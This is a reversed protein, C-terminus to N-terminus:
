TFESLGQLRSPTRTPTWAANAVPIPRLSEGALDHPPASGTVDCLTPLSGASLAIAASQVVVETGRSGTIRLDAASARAAILLLAALPLVRDANLFRM